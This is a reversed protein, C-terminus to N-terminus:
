EYPPLESYADLTKLPTILREHDILKEQVTGTESNIWIYSCGVKKAYDFIESTGGRGGAKKGNWIVFLVDCSHVINRGVNEFSEDRNGTYDLTKIMRAKGKLYNFDEVSGPATFDQVYLQEPMPFVAELFSESNKDTGKMHLVEHSVLRDSGEALPSISILIHPSDPFLKSLMGKLEKLETRVSNRILDEKELKRHGTVGILLTVPIRSAQFDAIEKKTDANM